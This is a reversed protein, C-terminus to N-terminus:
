QQETTSVGRSAALAFFAELATPDDVADRSVVDDVNARPLNAKNAVRPSRVTIAFAHRIRWSSSFTM